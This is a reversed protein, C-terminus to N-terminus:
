ANSPGRVDVVMGDVGVLAVEVSGDDVMCVKEIEHGDRLRLQSHIDAM